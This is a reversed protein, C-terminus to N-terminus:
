QKHKLKNFIKIVREKPLLYAVLLALVVGVATDFMRNLSYSIYTDVPTNFFIISLVVGGPQVGGNWKFFQCAYILVLVGVFLFPLIFLHFSGDPYVLIYLRFLIMGILGGIITGMLRNGGNLKSDDMGGGTGFIVGICAFAPSRGFPLYLLACLVCTLATKLSRVGITADLNFLTCKKM